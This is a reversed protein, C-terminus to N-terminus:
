VMQKSDQPAVVLGNVGAVTKQQILNIQQLADGETTPGDWLIEVPIGAAKLDAAAREAGRKVSQWHEHTLGKPIVAIRYKYAEKRSCGSALLAASTLLALFSRRSMTTGERSLTRRRPRFGEGWGGGRLPSPSGSTKGGERAPFPP